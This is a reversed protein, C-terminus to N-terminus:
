FYYGNEFWLLRQFTWSRNCITNQCIYVWLVSVTWSYSIIVTIVVKIYDATIVDKKLYIWIFVNPFHVETWWIPSESLLPQPVVPTCFMSQTQSKIPAGSSGSTPSLYANSCIGINKISLVWNDHTTTPAEFPGRTQHLRVLEM